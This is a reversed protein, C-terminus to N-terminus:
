SMESEPGAAIGMLYRRACDAYVVATDVLQALSVWEDAQHPVHREGAGITVLPIGHAWLFTGDTAGPEGNLVARHGTRDAVAAMMAQVLAHDVPTDTAPRNDVVVLHGSFAGPDALSLPERLESLYKRYVTNSWNVSDEVLERMRAIVQDHDQGVVTRIDLSVQASGPVVNFGSPGSIPAQVQTPTISPWGLYPDFGLSKELMQGDDRLVELFRGVIVLPNAGALPMAGHAMKGVFQAQLRIGGKQRICVELNEPECSVAADVDRASGAAIYHRIGVMMHEEDAPVLLRVTGPFEGGTVRGWSRLGLYAAVLNGKTDAPGRGYLRDGGRTLRYPPDHWDAASGATVTDSHAEYLLTRGPRRGRWEIM